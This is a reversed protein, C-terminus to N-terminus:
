CGGRVETGGWGGEGGHGRRGECRLVGGHGGALHKAQQVHSHGGLAAPQGRTVGRPAEGLQLLQAQGRGAGGAGGATNVIPEQHPEEVARPAQPPEPQAATGADGGVPQQLQGARTLGARLPPGPDGPASQPRRPRSLNAM